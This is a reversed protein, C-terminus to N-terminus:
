FVFWWYLRGSIPFFIEYPGITFTDRFTKGIGADPGIDGEIQLPDTKVVIQEVLDLQFDQAVGFLVIRIRKVQEIRNGADALDERQDKKILDM